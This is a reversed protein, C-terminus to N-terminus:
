FPRPLPQGARFEGMVKHNADYLVAFLHNEQPGIAEKYRVVYLAFGPPGVPPLPEPRPTDDLMLTIALILYPM